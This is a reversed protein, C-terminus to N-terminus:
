KNGQELELLMAKKEIGEAYGVLNGNKGIVRHCPVLIAIPNRHNAMGVARSAGPQNIAAAIASYSRTEGYPIERLAQWVRQQFATGNLSLPLDFSRRNGAFYDDLQRVAEQLLKSAVWESEAVENEKLFGLACIGSEDEELCLVGVPSRYFCFAKVM